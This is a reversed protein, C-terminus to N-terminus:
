LECYFGMRASAIQRLVQPEDFQVARWGSHPNVSAVPSRRRLLVLVLSAGACAPAPHTPM